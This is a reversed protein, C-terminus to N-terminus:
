EDEGGLKRVLIELASKRYECNELVSKTWCHPYDLSCKKPDPCFLCCKHCEGLDVSPLCYRNKIKKRIEHLERLSTCLIKLAEKRETMKLKHRDKM